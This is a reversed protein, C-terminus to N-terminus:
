WHFEKEGATISIPLKNQSPPLPCTAFETLACPPNYAKNFDLVVENNEDPMKAYMYRGSGYTGAGNTKDGFIIFLEDGDVVADLTYDKGDITFQLYGPCIEPYTFGIVNLIMLTKPPDYPNFKATVIWKEDIPYSALPIERQLNPHALDKLRVGYKEGRKIAHFRFSGMKLEAASQQMITDPPTSGDLATIAADPEKLLVVSDSLVMIGAKATFQEPFVLDNDSAAGFTNEGPKLWYLGALNVFGNESKLNALRRARWEDMEKLYAPDPTKACGVLALFVVILSKKMGSFNDM